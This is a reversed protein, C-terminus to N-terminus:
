RLGLPRLIRERVVNTAVEGGRQLALAGVISYMTHTLVAEVGSGQLNDSKKPVWRTVKDFGYSSALQALRGKDLINNKAFSTLNEIGELAPHRFVEKAPPKTSPAQPANLLAKSTELDILRKGFFALRDNFGRRAHDFSKHTVALWQWRTLM